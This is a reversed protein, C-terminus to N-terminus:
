HGFYFWYFPFRNFNYNYPTLLGPNVHLTLYDDTYQNTNYYSPLPHTSPDYKYMNKWGIVYDVDFNANKRLDTPSQWEITSQTNRTHTHFAGIANDPRNTTGVKGNKGGVALGVIDDNTIWGSIEKGWALSRQIAVSAKYHQRYNWTGGQHKYVGYSMAQQLHFAGLGVTGGFLAAKVVDEGRGGNLASGVAGSTAGGFFAGVGGGISSGVLGGAFGSVAGKWMGDLPNGGAMATYGFGSIAGSVAGGVSAGVIGAGLFASQGIAGAVAGGALGSVAGIAAGGIIYAALEGGKAGNAHGIMAGQIMGFAAGIVIPIWLFEGDPDTYMLPNNRAYSYRNFDQTFSSNAVYKDPSFFKGIVPDYLRGNMNIIKFDPYHEHGTFGRCTLPFAPIEIIVPVPKKWNITDYRIPYNGWPDFWNRQKVQKTKNTIACYSGLHDTHIYYLSDTSVAGKDDITIDLSDLISTTDKYSYQTRLNMAVVGNDGYIYFYYRSILVSDITRDSEYEFYKNV